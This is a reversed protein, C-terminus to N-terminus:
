WGGYYWLSRLSILQIINDFLYILFLVILIQPAVSSIQQTPQQRPMPLIGTSTKSTNSRPPFRHPYQSSRQPYQSFRQPYQPKARHNGSSYGSSNSSPHGQKQGYLAFTSNDSPASQRDLMMEHNYLEARFDAFSLSTNRSTITITTIFSNFSPNLGGMLYSILDEDDVPKGIAALQDACTKAFNLYATCTKSGQHLTQLQRKLQSIWSKSQSAFQTSLALWVQRSTHLGYVSSLVSESLNLNIWSLIFQDKRVWVSYEPNSITKGLEDTLFEPPCTDSGDVIGMLDYTKLIPVLQTEWQMYTTETLKILQTPTPLASPFVVSSSSSSAMPYLFPTLRSLSQYWSLIQSPITKILKIL